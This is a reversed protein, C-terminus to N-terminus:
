GRGVALPANVVDVVSGEVLSAAAPVSGIMVRVMGDVSEVGIRFDPDAMRLDLAADSGTTVTDLGILYRVAVEAELPDDPPLDGQPLL